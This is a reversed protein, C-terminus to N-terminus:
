RRVRSTKKVPKVAAERAAIEEATPVAARRRAPLNTKLRKIIEEIPRAHEDCLDTVRLTDGARGVTGVKFRKPAPQQCVDCLTETVTRRMM